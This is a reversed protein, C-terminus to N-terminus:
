SIVVQTLELKFNFFYFVPCPPFYNHSYQSLTCHTLRISVTAGTPCNRNASNKCNWLATGQADLVGGRISVGDVHEFMLWNEGTVRYDSPAVLTGDITISIAKNACKNGTFTASGLLFRGQPVYIAAPNPTACAKAWASLFAKTSDTHGDSKAGFQVVNYTSSSSSSSSAKATASSLWYCMIVIFILFLLPTSSKPTPNSM